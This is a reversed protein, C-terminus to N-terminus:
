DFKTSPKGQITGWYNTGLMNEIELSKVSVAMNFGTIDHINKNKKLHKLTLLDACINITNLKNM